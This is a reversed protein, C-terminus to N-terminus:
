CLLNSLAKELLPAIVKEKEHKTAILLRRNKFLLTSMYNPNIINKARQLRNNVSKGLLIQFNM